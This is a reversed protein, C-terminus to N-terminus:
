GFRFKFSGSTNTVPVEIKPTFPTRAMALPFSLSGYQQLKQSTVTFGAQKLGETASIKAGANISFDKYKLGANPSISAGENSSVGLSLGASLTADGINQTTKIGLNTALDVGRMNSFTLGSSVGIGVPLGFIEADVGAGLGITLEKKQSLRKVIKEGNFDDPLGRVTRNIRGINLQWGFGTSSAEETMGITSSYSINIPYGGDLELLDINYNFDGTFPNVMQRTSNPTFKQVEPTSPGSTQAM